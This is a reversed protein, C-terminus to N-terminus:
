LRKSSAPEIICLNARGEECPKLFKFLILIPFRKSPCTCTAPTYRGVPGGIGITFSRQKFDRKTGAAVLAHAPIWQNIDARAAPVSLFLPLACFLFCSGLRSPTPIPHPSVSSPLNATTMSAPMMWTSTRTGTRSLSAPPTSIIVSERPACLGRPAGPHLACVLLVSLVCVRLICPLSLRM